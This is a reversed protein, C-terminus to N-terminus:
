EHGLHRRLTSEPLADFDKESITAMDIEADAKERRANPNDPPMKKATKLNKEIDTKRPQVKEVPKDRKLSRGKAFVDERLLMKCAKRLADTLPIGKAEYGEVLEGINDLMEQDFDDHEPDLRPDLAELERVMTNYARVETQEMASRTALMAAQSRNMGDRIEDIRKQAKAADGAKGEARFEEVKEYLGDLEEILKDFKQRSADSHAQQQTELQSRLEKVQNELGERARSTRSLKKELKIEAATKKPPADEEEEEEPEEEEEEEPEEEEEEEAVVKKVVKKAPTKKAKGKDEAEDEPEEEEEVALGDNGLDAKGDDDDDGHAAFDNVNFVNDKGGM